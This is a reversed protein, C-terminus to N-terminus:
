NGTGPECPVNGNTWPATAFAGVRPAAICGSREAYGEDPMAGAYAQMAAHRSAMNHERAMAPAALTAVAVLAVSLLKVKSM